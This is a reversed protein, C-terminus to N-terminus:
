VSNAPADGDTTRAAIMAPTASAATSLPRPDLTMTPSAQATAIMTTASGAVIASTPNWSEAAAVAPSTAHAVGSVPQSPARAGRRGM